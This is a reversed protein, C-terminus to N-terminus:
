NDFVKDHSMNLFELGLKADVNALGSDKVQAGSRKGSEEADSWHTMGTLSAIQLFGQLM